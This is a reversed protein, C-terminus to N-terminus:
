VAALSDCNQGYRQEDDGGAGPEAFDVNVPVSAEAADDSQEAAPQVEGQATGGSELYNNVAQDLDNGCSELYFSATGRDECGTVGMFTSINEDM